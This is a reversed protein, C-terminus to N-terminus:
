LFYLGLEIIKLSFLVVMKTINMNMQKELEKYKRILKVELLSFYM